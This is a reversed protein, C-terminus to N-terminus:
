DVYWEGDDGLWAQQGNPLTKTTQKPQKDQYLKDERLKRRQLEQRFGPEMNNAHQVFGKREQEQRMMRKIGESDGKKALERAQKMLQDKAKKTLTGWGM